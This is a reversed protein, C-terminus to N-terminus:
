VSFGHRPCYLKLFFFRQHATYTPFNNKVHVALSIKKENVNVKLLGVFILTVLFIIATRILYRATPLGDGLKEGSLGFSFVINERELFVVFQIIM